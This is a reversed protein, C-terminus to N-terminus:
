SSPHFFTGSSQDARPGKCAGPLASASRCARFAFACPCRALIGSRTVRGTRLWPHGRVLHVIRAASAHESGTTPSCTLHAPPHPLRGRGPAPPDRFVRAPVPLTRDARVRQDIQGVVAPPKTAAGRRVEGEVEQDLNFANVCRCRSNIPAATTGKGRREYRSGGRAALM